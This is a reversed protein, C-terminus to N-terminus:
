AATGAGQVARELADEFSRTYPEMASAADAPLAAEIRAVLAAQRLPDRALAVAIEVYEDESHAITDTVRLHTLLSTAVREAHRRGCLTVLPVGEALATAASDGGTYPFADLAIDIVRYRARDVAEDQTAALFRVRSTEIDLCRARRLYHDREWEHWPSFVLVSGPVADLVRRWTRLCMPSLKVLSAFAGFVVTADRPRPPSPARTADVRRIPIVAGQMRLPRELQWRSADPLDAVDDTIRFDAQRLGIAGHLGLHEVIVPAPKHVLIGPRAGGSHSMLDVLVDIRDAAIRQAATLDDVGALRAFGATRERFAQTTADEHAAPALSYAYPEIRTRDHRSMVELMIWGMVHRRFDASLYGVRLPREPVNADRLPALDPRGGRQAQMLEDYARYVRLLTEQSVDHYQLGAVVSAAVQADAATFPWQLALRLYKQEFAPDPVYRAYAFGVGIVKASLTAGREFRLFDELADQERGGELLAKRLLLWLREDTPALERARRLPPLADPTRGLRMLAYGLNGHAAAADPALAIAVRFCREADAYRKVDCYLQGLALPPASWQPRLMGAQLLAQEAPGHAGSRYLLVGRNYHQEAPDTM